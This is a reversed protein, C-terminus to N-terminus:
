LEFQYLWELNVSAASPGSAAVDAGLFLSSRRSIAVGAAATLSIRTASEYVENGSIESPEARQVGLGGILTVEPNVAFSVQAKVSTSNGPQFEIKDRRWSSFYEMGVQVSLVLPDLSRYALANWRVAKGYGVESDELPSRAAIDVDMSLLLAPTRHDRSVQWSGGMALATSRRTSSPQYPSRTRSERQRITSRLELNSDAGYRLASVWQSSEVDQEVVAQVPPLRVTSEHPPFSLPVLVDDSAALFSYGVQLTLESRSAILADINLPAQAFSTASLAASCLLTVVLCWSSRNAARRYRRGSIPNSNM